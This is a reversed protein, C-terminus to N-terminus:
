KLLSRVRADMKEYEERPLPIASNCALLVGDGLASVKEVKGQLREIITAPAAGFARRCLEGDFYNGPHIRYVGDRGDVDRGTSNSLEVVWKWDAMQIDLDHITARYCDFAEVYAPLVEHFLARLREAGGSSFAIIAYDDYQANDRLYRESRLAYRVYSMEGTALLGRLTVVASLNGPAVDPAPPIERGRLGWPPAHRALAQMFKDHKERISENAAARHRLEIRYIESTRAPDRQQARAASPWVGAGGVMKIFDRRRMADPSEVEAM